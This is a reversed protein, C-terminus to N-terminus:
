KQNRVKTHKPKKYAKRKLDSEFLTMEDKEFAIFDPVTPHGKYPAYHHLEDRNRWVLVWAINIDQKNKKIPNLISNTFWDNRGLNELGTETLAAVKGKDKAISSILSLSKVFDKNQSELSIGIGLKGVDKYDDLGIIDVYDDGPYGYHYNEIANKNINWRSRDPSFAYLVNHVDLTDKLYDVTYRYLQIYEEELCNGKGWWFWDGNHEHWPRFVVPAGKLDNFFEAILKLQNNFADHKAGNPLIDKVSPTKDWSDSGTTFNDMHFSVTNVGGRKYADIMWGKMNEFNVSDINNTEDLRKGIDWGHVAPYKGSTEKVDSRGEIAKWGIGYAQDDEHGFMFNKSTISNFYSLLNQTKKTARSDIPKQGMLSSINMMMLIFGLVMVRSIGM